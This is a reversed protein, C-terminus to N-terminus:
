EEKSGLLEDLKEKLKEADGSRYGQHKYFVTGDAAIILTAPVGALHFLSLVENTQDLLVPLEINHRRMFPRVKPRNRPGDVNVTLVQVGKEKYAQAIEQLKPLGKICPKCWTAWFDLVVPGEARAKELSFTSGDITELVLQPANEARVVSVMSLCLVFLAAYSTFRLTYRPTKMMEGSYVLFRRYITFFRRKETGYAGNINEGHGM